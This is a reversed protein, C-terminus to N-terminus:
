LIVCKWRLFLHRIVNSDGDCKPQSDVLRKVYPQFFFATVKILPGCLYVNTNKNIQDDTMSILPNKDSSAPCFLNLREASLHTTTSRVWSSLFHQSTCCTMNCQPNWDKDFCSALKSVAPSCISLKWFTKWFALFLMDISQYVAMSQTRLKLPHPPELLLMKTSPPSCIAPPNHSIPLDKSIQLMENVLAM